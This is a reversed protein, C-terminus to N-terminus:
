TRAALLGKIKSWSWGCRILQKGLSDTWMGLVRAVQKLGPVAKEGRKEGMLDCAVRWVQRAIEPAGEVDNRTKPPRGKSRTNLMRKIDNGLARLEGTLVKKATQEAFGEEASQNLAQKMIFMGSMLVSIEYLRLMLKPFHRVFFRFMEREAELYEDDALLAARTEDWNADGHLDRNRRELDPDLRVLAFMAERLADPLVEGNVEISVVTPLEPLLTSVIRLLYKQPLSPDDFIEPNDYAKLDALFLEIEEPSYPTEGRTNENTM